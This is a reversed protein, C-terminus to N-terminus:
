SPSVTTVRIAPTPSSRLTHRLSGMPQHRDRRRSDLEHALPLREEEQLEVPDVIFGEQPRARQRAPGTRVDGAVHGAVRVREHIQQRPRARPLRARHVRRDLRPGIADFRARALRGVGESVIHVVRGVTQEIGDRRHGFAAHFAGIRVALPRATVPASTGHIRM